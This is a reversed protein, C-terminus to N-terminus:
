YLRVQGAFRVPSTGAGGAVRVWCGYLGATLGSVRVRIRYEPSATTGRNIPSASSFASGPPSGQTLTSFTSSLCAEWTLSTPVTDYALVPVEVDESTLAPLEVTITM